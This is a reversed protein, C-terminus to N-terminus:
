QFLELMCYSGMKRINVLRHKHTDVIERLRGGRFPLFRHARDPGLQRIQVM